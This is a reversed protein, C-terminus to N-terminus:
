PHSPMLAFGLALLSNLDLLPSDLNIRIFIIPIIGEGRFHKLIYVIKGGNPGEIQKNYTKYLHM